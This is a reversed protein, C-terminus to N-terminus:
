RRTRAQLEVGVRARLGSRIRGPRRGSPAFASQGAIPSGGLLRMYTTTHHQYALEDYWSPAGVACCAGTLPANNTQPHQYSVEAVDMLAQWGVILGYALDPIILGCPEYLTEVASLNWWGFPAVDLSNNYRMAYGFANDYVSAFAANGATPAAFSAPVIPVKVGAQGLSFQLWPAVVSVLCGGLSHGTVVLLPNNNEPAALFAALFAALSQGGSRLNQLVALGDLTGQAVRAPSTPAWPLPAQTTVDIDEWLQTLIGWGDGVDVDTGRIVTAAFVPMGPAADYVAVFALNSQDQPQAPGWACRWRGGADFPQLAAVAAPITAAPLYSVQCLQLYAVAFIDSAGSGGGLAAAKLDSATM